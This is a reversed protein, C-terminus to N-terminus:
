PVDRRPRRGATGDRPSKRRRGRRRDDRARRAMGQQDPIARGNARCAADVTPHLHFTRDLGLLQLVRGVVRTNVVLRVECGEASAVARARELIHVGHVAFFDLRGLDVVLRRCEGSRLQRNVTGELAPGTVVDLEGEPVLVVLGHDPRTVTIRLPTADRPQWGATGDGARFPSDDM